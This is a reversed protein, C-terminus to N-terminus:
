SFTSQDTFYDCVAYKMQKAAFVCKYFSLFSKVKQTLTSVSIPNSFAQPRRKIECLSSDCSM